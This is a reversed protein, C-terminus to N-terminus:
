QRRELLRAGVLEGALREVDRRATEADVDYVDLVKRTTEAVSLGNALHEWIAAGVEDLSFYKGGGMDGVVLEGDFRRAHVDRAPRFREDTKAAM